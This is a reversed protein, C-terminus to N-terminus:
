FQSWLRWVMRWGKGKGVVGVVNDICQLKWAKGKGVINEKAM